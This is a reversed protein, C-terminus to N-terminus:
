DPTREARERLQAQKKLAKQNLVSSITPSEGPITSSSLKTATLKHWTADFDHSISCIGLHKRFSPWGEFTFYYGDIYYDAFNDEIYVINDYYYGSVKYSPLGTVYGSVKKSSTSVATITIYDYFAMGGIIEKFKWDGILPHQAMAASALLFFLASLALAKKM